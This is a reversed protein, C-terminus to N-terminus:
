HAVTRASPPSVSRGWQELPIAALMSALGQTKATTIVQDVAPVDIVTNIAPDVPAGPLSILNWGPSLPIQVLPKGEPAPTPTHTAKPAPTPTPMPPPKATAAPTPTAAPAPTPTHTAKPTPTLMPTPTPTRTATPAPTPTATATPTPTPAPSITVDGGVLDPMWWSGGTNPFADAISFGEILSTTAGASGVAELQLRVVVQDGLWPGNGALVTQLAAHGTGNDIDLIGQGVGPVPIATFPADGGLVGIIHVVAPDYNLNLYYGSLGGTSPIDRYTVDVQGTGGEALVISGIEVRPGGQGEAAPPAGATNLLSLIAAVAVALAVLGLPLRRHRALHTIRSM